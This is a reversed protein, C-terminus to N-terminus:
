VKTTKILVKNLVQEFERHSTKINCYANNLAIADEKTLKSNDDRIASRILTEIHNTVQEVANNFYSQINLVKEMQTENM